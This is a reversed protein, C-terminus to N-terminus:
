GLLQHDCCLLLTPVVSLRNKAVQKKKTKNMTLMIFANYLVTMYTHLIDRDEKKLQMNMCAFVLANHFSLCFHTWQASLGAIGIQPYGKQSARTLRNKFKSVWLFTTKIKELVKSLLFCNDFLQLRRMLCTCLFQCFKNPFHKHQALANLITHCFFNFARNLFRDIM